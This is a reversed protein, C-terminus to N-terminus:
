SVSAGASSARLEKLVGDVLPRYQEPISFNDKEWDHRPYEYTVVQRLFDNKKRGLQLSVLSLYNGIKSEDYNPDFATFAKKLESRTVVKEKLLAPFLIDRVRQNTVQPRRLYDYLLRRLEAPEYTGPTDSMPVQFTRQKRSRELEVDESIVSTRTLLEDGSKTKVYHLVVANIQVGYAESLWEIMRELSSAIAFGVLIIRQSSNINLTEADVEPFAESFAIELATKRYEACVESLEEVTWGAVDSAYDIAQALSERPLVDRKLEIVVTNGARDIALLDIFGSKTTVQRGILLLDAGLIEPQSELWPELDYPETRKEDKLASDLVTLKGDVMQWTRIETSM